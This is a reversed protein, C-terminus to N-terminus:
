RTFLYDYRYESDVVKGEQDIEQHKSYSNFRLGCSEGLEIMKAPNAYFLRASNLVIQEKGLVAKVSRRCMGLFSRVGHNILLFWLLGVISTGRYMRFQAFEDVEPIEGVWVTAGPRAIRAIERLAERVEYESELLLLVSNCVIKTASESQVPLRQAKGVLFNVGPMVAQLRTKEDATPIIGFATSTRGAAMRLLLGDGCGIDVLVDDPGFGIQSLISKNTFETLAKRDGRGAM